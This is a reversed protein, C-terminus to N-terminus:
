GSAEVVRTTQSCGISGFRAQSVTPSQQSELPQESSMQSVDVGALGGSGYPRLNVHRHVARGSPASQSRGDLSPTSTQVPPRQQV